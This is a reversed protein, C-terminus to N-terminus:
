GRSVIKVIPISKDSIYKTGNNILSWNKGNELEENTPSLTEQTTKLYSIGYPAVYNRKRSILSTEGGSKFADRTMEYPTAVSLEGFEIAGNGLVYTTYENGAPIEEEGEGVKAVSKAPMSDDILVLKGNWTGLQLERQIGNSDTYKLREMLNLNELNTAVASHMIALSFAGKNDGCAKQIANNLTDEKVKGKNDVVKSVDFTHNDVLAKNEKPTSMNFVGNLVSLITKQDDEAWYKVVQKAVNDMFNIGSADFSFDKETWANARGYAVVGREFTDTENATIDTVGDYNLSEGGIKGFFPVIGYFSNVQGNFMNEIEASRTIAGSNVLEVKTTDPITNVYKGFAEENFIKKDFKISM